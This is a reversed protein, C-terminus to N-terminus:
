ALWVSLLWFSNWTEFFTWHTPSRGRHHFGVLCHYRVDIQHCCGSSLSDSACGPWMINFV